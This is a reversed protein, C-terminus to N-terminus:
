ASTCGSRGARMWELVEFGLRRETTEDLDRGERIRVTIFGPSNNIAGVPGISGRRGGQQLLPSPRVDVTQGGYRASLEEDPVPRSVYVVLDPGVIGRWKSAVWQWHDIPAYADTIPISATVRDCLTLGFGGTVLAVPLKPPQQTRHLSTTTVARTTDFSTTDAGEATASANSTSTSSLSPTGTMAAAVTSPGSKVSAATTDTKNSSSASSGGTPGKLAATTDAANTAVADGTVHRVIQNSRDYWVMMSAMYDKYLDTVRPPSTLDSLREVQMEDKSKDHGDIPKLVLEDTWVKTDWEASAAELARAVTAAVAGINAPYRYDGEVAIIAGRVPGAVPSQHQNGRQRQMVPSASASAPSVCLAPGPLAPCVTEMVRLKQAFPIAAVLADLSDPHTTLGFSASPMSANATLPPLEQHMAPYTGPPMLTRPLSAVAPSSSHSSGHQQQYHYRGTISPSQSVMVGDPRGEHQPQHRELQTTLLPPLRLSEDFGVSNRHGPEYPQQLRRLAPPPGMMNVPSNAVPAGISGTRSLGPVHGGIMPTQPQTVSSISPARSSTSYRRSAATATASAAAVFQQRPQHHYQQEEQHSSKSPPYGNAGGVSENVLTTPSHFRRRKSSMVEYDEGDHRYHRDGYQQHSHHGHHGTSQHSYHHDPLAAQSGRRSPHGHTADSPSASSESSGTTAKAMVPPTYPTSPTRPTAIFRGGCKQCRSPEEASATSPRQGPGGKGGRRPQYRYDPYQRQHRQKEEEALRKWGNKVEEPQERWQEGIIKSIEPNALGPNEAVVQAQHHQRYLIFAVADLRCICRNSM